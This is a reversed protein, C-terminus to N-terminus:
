IAFRHAGLVGDIHLCGPIMADARIPKCDIYTMCTDVLLRGQCLGQDDHMSRQQQMAELDCNTVSSELLTRM